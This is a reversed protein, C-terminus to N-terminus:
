GKEAKHKQNIDSQVDENNLNSTVESVLMESNGEEKSAFLFLTQKSVPKTENEPEGSSM